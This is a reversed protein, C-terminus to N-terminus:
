IIRELGASFIVDLLGLFLAVALSFVIVAMTSSVVEDKTPWITKKLEDKSDKLFNLISM